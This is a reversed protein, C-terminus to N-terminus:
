SSLCDEYSKQGALVEHARVMWDSIQIHQPCKEECQRCQICDEARKGAELHAYHDRVKDLESFMRGTNFLEFVSPIPIENVCPLCYSCGTCPIPCLEEYRKRVAEVLAKEEATFSGVASRNASALNGEVQEFTSMGSLVVSVEPQDWLWQLAWEAASRKKAASDWLAQIETNPNALRGGMLPEMIVVALGKAAAYKLGETGPDKQADLYNYQIQCFTWLDSADVIEKFLAKHSHFSFGLNRIRGDALAKEAWPLVGLGHLNSWFDPNLAHLLYYDIHDTQLRELQENLYKDFDDATKVLWSPLKTALRVKQRYGDALAKGVLGESSGEHYPYATDVYNVGQDIAHRIMRIAEPENIKGYNNELVPLRMCGFGLASGKWDLKGFPRYQM